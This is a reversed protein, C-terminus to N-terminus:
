PLDKYKTNHIQLTDHTLVMEKNIHGTSYGNSTIKKKVIVLSRKYTM